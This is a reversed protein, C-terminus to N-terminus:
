EYSEVKVLKGLLAYRGDAVDYSCTSLLMLQDGEEISYNSQFTSESVFRNVYALFDVDTEFNISVYDDSGNSLIGAVPYMEYKATPTEIVFVQHSDYYSQEKYNEVDAFMTGNKMHHGYLVINRDTFGRTNRYDMFIAGARNKTGDFLYHLYTENDSAYVIPYDITSDALSIWGAVDSNISELYSWDIPSVPKVEEETTVATPTAEVKQKLNDYATEGQKYDLIGTILQYGSFCAVLLCIIIALNLLRNGTKSLKRKKKEAM